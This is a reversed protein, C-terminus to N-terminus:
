EDVQRQFIAADYFQRRAATAAAATALTGCARQINCANVRLNFTIASRSEDNIGADAAHPVCPIRDPRDRSSGFHALTIKPFKRRDGSSLDVSFHHGRIQETPPWRGRGFM